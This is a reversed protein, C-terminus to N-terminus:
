FDFRIQLNLGHLSLDGPNSIEGGNVGSITDAYSRMKNQFFYTQQEYAVLIDFHWNNRDLYCGWNFGLLFEISPNVANFNKNSKNRFLLNPNTPSQMKMSYKSFQQYFLSIETNGILNFGSGLHWKGNLGARPGLLWSDSLSRTVSTNSNILSFDPLTAVQTYAQNIWGGKLGYLTKLTFKKGVYYSRGLDLDFINFDLKWKSELGSIGVFVSSTARVWRPILVGDSPKQATTTNTFNLRTYQLFVDWDDYVVNYGLGIKFAPEYKFDFDFIKDPRSTIVNNNGIVGTGGRSYGVALGEENAQWWLFTGSAYVDWENCVNIRAPANYASSQPTPPIECCPPCNNNDSFQKAFANSFVVLSILLLKIKNINM